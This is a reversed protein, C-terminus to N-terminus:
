PLDIVYLCGTYFTMVQKANPFVVPKEVDFLNSPGLPNVRADFMTLEAVNAGVHLIHRVDHVNAPHAAMQM